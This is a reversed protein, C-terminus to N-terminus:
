RALRRGCATFAGTLLVGGHRLATGLLAERSGYVVLSQAMPGAGVLRVDGEVAWRAIGGADDGDLSVILIAGRAPPALLVIAVVLIAIFGQALLLGHRPGAQTM